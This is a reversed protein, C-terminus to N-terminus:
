HRSDLVIASGMGGGACMAAVGVGGGRRHLEHALTTVMRAGTAAVPHGLSCGSGYPNVLDEDLKLERCAAIVVSAFAENIEWLDVQDAAIGARALAKAIAQPVALGTREPSVGVSAGAVIRALPAWGHDKAADADAVLVAAAADNIGSANGATVSFGDIEPHLPQLAALKELSTSARPHEDSQFRVQEGDARVVDIGIIEGAFQGADIAAIARQHSRLAWADQEARTIGTLRAANWGVTISMDDAPADPTPRHSEFVWPQDPAFRDGLLPATSSSQVGGAIIARDGTLIAGAATLIASLGGACHRNVALGPVDVLGAEIAAYRALVSGGHLSEALIVDDILDSPVALRRVIQQIVPTVLDAPQTRSLTGKFSTGIPTRLAAAIVPEPM